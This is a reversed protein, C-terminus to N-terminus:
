VGRYEPERGAKRNTESTTYKERTETTEGMAGNIEGVAGDIEGMAGNIEGMAGDIEGM